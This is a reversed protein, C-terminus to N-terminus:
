LTTTVVNLITKGKNVTEEWEKEAISDITIGGGVYLILENELYQMCRLNVYLKAQQDMNITGLYGTYYSRKYSENAQIFNLAPLKPLGCVAPTPHLQEILGGLDGTLRATIKTRLHYLKAAKVTQVESVEVASCYDKLAELIAVTVMAQEQKEKEGWVVKAQGQDAVTAALAMTHLKQDKVEILTEPSAGMWLGVKPHYWLYCFADPYRLVLNKYLAICDLEPLPIHQERSLVVKQFEGNEIAQVGKNVLHLHRQKEPYELLLEEVSYGNSVASLECQIEKSIDKPIIVAKDKRVFPVMIFGQQEMHDLKHLTKSSQLLGSVKTENPYKYLVFPLEQDYHNAVERLFFEADLVMM